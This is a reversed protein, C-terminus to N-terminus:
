KWLLFPHIIKSYESTVGCINSYSLRVLGLIGSISLGALFTFRRMKSYIFKFRWYTSIGKTIHYLGITILGCLCTYGLLYKIYNNENRLLWKIFDFDIELGINRPLLNMLSIHLLILPTLVYGTIVQRNHPLEIFFKTFCECVKGILGIEQQSSTVVKFDDIVINNSSHVSQLVRLALGSLIHVSISVTLLSGMYSPFLERIMMLVESPITNPEISPIILTNTLHFPLYGLLPLTSYKQIQRIVKRIWKFNIWPIGTPKDEEDIPTFSKLPRPDLEKLKM